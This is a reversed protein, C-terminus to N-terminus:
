KELFDIWQKVLATQAGGAREYAAAYTHALTLDQARTHVLAGAAHVNYIWEVGLYLAEKDDPRDTLYRELMRVADRGRGFTAYLMALPRTFRLDAPWKGAAEEYISRAENLDHTRLLTDGLWAYIQPIDSGDALSTQFASAAEADHGAAAFCVALYAISATSDVDPQISKKLSSEAKPYDGATILAVGTDFATRASPAVRARFPELVDRKVAADKNFPRGLLEEGVPLFLEADTSKEAGLGEASSLLVAPAAIEFARSVTKIPAAGNLLTVRLVYPGAPLQRTPIVKSFLARADGARRPTVDAELLAPGSAASAVEFTAHVGDLRAGYAELYGHVSGYSVTYGVTPRLLDGVETPGGVTLDSVSVGGAEALAAHIAHEVSGAKDGEAVALKLTYDGPPVSAGGTFQLPSPVGNVVPALRADTAQSDVLRGSRDFLMFGISVPRSATYDAGVDAHILVQIKNPEPGQLAFTAVRLPLASSLLPSGLSATVADRPTRSAAKSDDAANVFQRSSRITAGRRAVDIRVQHPRGDRDKPDSEVALEYYGSLEAEIREFVTSGSNTVNFVAGRAAGALVDLGAALAQRDGVADTPMRSESASFMDRELKLGYLSTRAAAALSGVDAIYNVDDLVFGETILILTKPADVSKLGTLLARLGVLTADQGRTAEQALQTAETEVEARCLEVAGQNFRQFNAPNCERDQVASLTNRDGHQIAQAEGLSIGHTDSQRAQKQGSMHALASKVRERDATFPTVPAGFGFGTVAVRDSPALRDIFAAAARGIAQNAGFRINPQDVAIVILRGGTANENSTYGDPVVVSAPKADTTLAVWEAGVVRRVSGDIKVTFDEPKLGQMPRGRDDVVTADIATVEVTASFRPPPPPQQAHLATVAAFAVSAAVVATEL